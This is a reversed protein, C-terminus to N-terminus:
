RRDDVFHTPARELVNTRHLVADARFQGTDADWWGWMGRWQGGDQWALAYLRYEAHPYEAIPRLLSVRAPPIPFPPNIDDYPPPEAM